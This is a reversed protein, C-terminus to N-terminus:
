SRLLTFALSCFMQVPNSIKNNIKMFRFSAVLNKKHQKENKEEDEQRLKGLEPNYAPVVMTVRIATNIM